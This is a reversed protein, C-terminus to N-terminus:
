RADIIDAGDVAQRIATVVCGEYAAAVAALAQPISEALVLVQKGDSQFGLASRVKESQVDTILDAQYLVATAFTPLEASSEVATDRHLAITKADPVPAEEFEVQPETPQETPVDESEVVGQMLGQMGAETEEYKPPADTHVGQKEESM